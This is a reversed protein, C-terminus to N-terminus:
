YEYFNEFGICAAIKGEGKQPEPTAKSDCQVSLDGAMTVHYSFWFGPLFLVEGPELMTELAEAGGLRELKLPDASGGTGPHGESDEALVGRENFRSWDMESQRFFPNNRDAVIGLSPCSSPPSLIYRKRGRGQAVWLADGDWHAENIGGRMGLHCIMGRHEDADRIFFSAPDNATVGTVEEESNNESLVEALAARRADFIPLDDFLFEYRLASLNELGESADRYPSKITKVDARIQRAGTMLHWQMHPDDPGIDRVDALKAQRLWDKFPMKTQWTPAWWDSLEKEDDVNEDYYIFHNSLSVEVLSVGGPAVDLEEESRMRAHIRETLYADTWKEPATTAGPANKIKFPLEADLMLQAERMQRVDNFDFTTLDDQLGEPVNLDDPNWELIEGLSRFAPTRLVPAGGTPAASAAASGEQGQAALGGAVIGGAGPRSEGAPAPAPAEGQRLRVWLFIVLAAIALMSVASTSKMASRKKYKGATTTGYQPLSGM